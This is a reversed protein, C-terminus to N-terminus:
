KYRNFFAQDKLKEKDQVKGIIPKEDAPLQYLKGVAKTLRTTEAESAQGPNARLDYYQKAFFGAVGLAILMILAVIVLIITTKRNRQLQM